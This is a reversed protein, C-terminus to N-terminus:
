TSYFYLKLLCTTCDSDSVGRENDLSFSMFSKGMKTRGSVNYGFINFWIPNLWEYFFIPNLTECVHFRDIYQHFLMETDLSKGRNM